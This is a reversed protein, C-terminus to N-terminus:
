SDSHRHVIVSAADPERNLVDPLVVRFQHILDLEDDNVVIWIGLVSFCCLIIDCVPHLITAIDRKVFAPSCRWPIVDEPDCACRCHKTHVRMHQKILVHQGSQQRPVVQVGFCLIQKLARHQIVTQVAVHCRMHIFDPPGPHIACPSRVRTPM